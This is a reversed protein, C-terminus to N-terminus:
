MTKLQILHLLMNFYKKITTLLPFKEKGRVRKKAKESQKVFGKPIMNRFYSYIKRGFRSGCWQPPAKTSVFGYQNGLSM